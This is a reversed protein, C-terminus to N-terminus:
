FYYWRSRNEHFTSSGSNRSSKVKAQRYLQFVEMHNKRKVKQSVRHHYQNGIDSLHRHPQNEESSSIIHNAHIWGKRLDRRQWDLPSLPLSCFCRKLWTKENTRQMWLTAVTEIEQIIGGITLIFSKWLAGSPEFYKEIRCFWFM